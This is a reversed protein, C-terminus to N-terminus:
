TEKEEKLQINDELIYNLIQSLAVILRQLGNIEQNNQHNIPNLFPVYQQNKM